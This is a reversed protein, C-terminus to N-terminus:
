KKGRPQQDPPMSHAFDVRPDFKFWRQGQESNSSLVLMAGRVHESLGLQIDRPTFLIATTGSKQVAYSQDLLEQTSHSTNAPLRALVSLVDLRHRKGRNPPVSTWDGSWAVLGVPLGQELASNALSAAMAIAREIGVQLEPSPQPMHTDVLLLLRPPSVHTMEKAVLTGTRASRRWYIYRPNEGERHEKVGYFEDQGGRRPRMMAGSSEASRCMLLLKRNVEGVAPFILLKAEHSRDMARKIFGFPFSTSLQYRNLRHLGRRRPLLEVPVVATQKAAVHLLYGHPQKEFAEVGDM